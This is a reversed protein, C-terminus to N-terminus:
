SITVKKPKRQIEKAKKVKKSPSGTPTKYPSVKPTKYPSGSPTRNTSGTPTRKPSGTPTTFSRDRKQTPQLESILNHLIKKELNLYTQSTKRQIEENKNLQPDTIFEFNTLFMKEVKKNNNLKVLIQRTIANFQKTKSRPKLPEYVSRGGLNSHPQKKKHLRELQDKLMKFSSQNFQPNNSTRLYSQLTLPLNQMVVTHKTGTENRLFETVLRNNIPLSNPYVYAYRIKEQKKVEKSYQKM